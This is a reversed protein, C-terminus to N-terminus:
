LWQVYEKTFSGDDRPIFELRLEGCFGQDVLAKVELWNALTIPLSVQKIPGLAYEQDFLSLTEQPQLYYFGEGDAFRQLMQGQEERDEDTIIMSASACQWTVGIKGTRFLARLMAIDQYEEETLDRDPLYVLKGSKIQLADLAALAELFDENPAECAGAENRGSAVLMGTELNTFRMTHPKSVCRILQMQLLQQHVNFTVDHDMSMHFGSISGDFHIIQQIKFPIPQSENNLTAEKQGSQTCTLHIYEIVFRDGDDCVVECRLLLPKPHPLPGFQLFGDNTMAPYVQQLLDPYELNKIYTGPIKIPAGTERFRELAEVHERGDATNPFEFAMHFTLPKELAAGPFKEALTHQIGTGNIRAELRYHTDWTEFDQRVDELKQLAAQLPMHEEVLEWLKDVDVFTVNKAYVAHGIGAKILDVANSSIPKNSVVWCRDVWEEAGTIPDIYPKSFCQRVQNEIDASANSQGSVATAKVVFALNERSNLKDTDWCVIDKGFETTGHYEHVGQFQMAQLLPILVQKRLDKEIMDQVQKKTFM